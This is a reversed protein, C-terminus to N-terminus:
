RGGSIWQTLVDLIDMKTIEEFHHIRCGHHMDSKIFKKCKTNGKLEVATACWPDKGGYIFLMNRADTQLWQNIAHIQKRNFTVDKHGDPLTFSFDIFLEPEKKFHKKFPKLSYAYMGIETMAAYYFPQISRISADSFFDPPSIRVLYRFLEDWDQLETEPMESIQAGWQWFAFPFELIVLKTARELGGAMGFTYGMEEALERMRSVFQELHDFCFYQFELIQIRTGQKWGPLLMRQDPTRGLHEIYKDFRPDAQELNMPAVYPVSVEVDDPYFYRHFITTQGGKSIGTSIWAVQPYLAKRLAQIIRHQDTAAQKITLHEWPISSEPVSRNFFRHEITIQNTTFLQTLENIRFHHVSYGELEVVVPAQLDHHALQVYQRFSGAAPNQHDVPQEFYFEYAEEFGSIDLPRIDSIGPIQELRTRVPTEAALNGLCFFASLLLLYLHRM